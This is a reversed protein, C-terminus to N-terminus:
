SYVIKEFNTFVNLAKTDVFPLVQMMVVGAMDKKPDVWFFTNALGAWSLGGPSRGTPATEENIMFSLGWTKAIGPFFEADLSAGLNQSPLMKVRLPGIANRAMLEVTEKKLIQNGNGSGKSLIMRMFKLYDQATSYLGGGGPEFEPNQNTENQTVTLGSGQPGRQHVKAMRARMEPSIKFSTSPMDLPDTINNKIYAGLTMGSVAEIVQGMWDMNIGYEWQTGPDFSLPINLGAKKGSGARPVNFTKHYRATEPNWIDYTFGATHTLLHRITIQTKPARLIPQGNSDWGTLVKVEGLQSIIQAAPQDLSMKGREILQMAATGVIPKTMSALWMVTDMTMPVGTGLVREGFAGEYTTKSSNTVAAVVGPVDGNAVAGKLLNDLTQNSVPRSQALSESASMALYGITPLAFFSSSTKIFKRRDDQM